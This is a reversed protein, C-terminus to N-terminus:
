SKSKNDLHPRFWGVHIQGSPGEADDPYHIRPAPYGGQELKIHAPMYLRGSPDVSTPVPFTRLSRFAQNRDTSDSEGIAMWSIPIVDSHLGRECFIAFTASDEDGGHKSDVYAQMAQFTQWAKRAWSSQAHADLQEAAGAVQPGLCLGPCHEKALEVAESCFEPTQIDDAPEEPTEGSKRIQGQAFELRRSLRAALDLLESSSEREGELHQESELREVEAQEARREAEKREKEALELLEELDADSPPSTGILLPDRLTETWVRPPVIHGVSRTLPLVVLRGATDAPGTRLRAFPILRHRSPYDGDRGIKPLYTRVAGGYVDIPLKAEHMEKSFSAVAGKELLVVPAVGVLARQLAGARERAPEM